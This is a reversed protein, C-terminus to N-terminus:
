NERKGKCTIWCLMLLNLYVDPQPFASWMSHTKLGWQGGARQRDLRPFNHATFACVNFREDRHPVAQHYTYLHAHEWPATLHPVGQAENPFEAFSTTM